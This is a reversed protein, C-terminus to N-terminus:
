LGMGYDMQCLPTYGGRIKWISNDQIPKIDVSEHPYTDPVIAHNYYKWGEIKM